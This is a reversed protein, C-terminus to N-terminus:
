QNESIVVAIAYLDDHSLSVEFLYQNKDKIEVVPADEIYSTIIDLMPIKMNLSKQTAEKLAFKGAFHRYNDKFKLCYTIEADNFIKKHFSQNTSFPM